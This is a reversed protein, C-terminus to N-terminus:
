KFYVQSGSEIIESNLCSQQYRQSINGMLLFNARFITDLALSHALEIHLVADQGLLLPNIILTTFSIKIHMNYNTM